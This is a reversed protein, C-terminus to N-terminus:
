FKNTSLFFAFQSESDSQADSLLMILLKYKAEKTFASPKATAAFDFNCSWSSTCTQATAAAAASSSLTSRLLRRRGLSTSVLSVTSNPAADDDARCNLRYYAPACYSCRSSKGGGECKGDLSGAVSTTSYTTSRPPALSENTDIPLIRAAIWAVKFIQLGFLTKICFAYNSIVGKSRMIHM